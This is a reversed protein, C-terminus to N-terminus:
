NLGVSFIPRGTEPKQLCPNFTLTLLKNKKLQFCYDLPTILHLITGTSLKGLM